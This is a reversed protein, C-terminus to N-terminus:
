PHSKDDASLRQLRRDQDPDLSNSVRSANVLIKEFFNFISFFFRWCVVVLAYFKGLMCLKNKIKEDGYNLLTAQM